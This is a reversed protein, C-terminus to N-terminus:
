KLWHYLITDCAIPKVGSESNPSCSQSYRNVTAHLARFRQVPGAARDLAKLNISWTPWKYVSPSFLVWSEDSPGSFTNPPDMLNSAWWNIGFLVLINQRAWLFIFSLYKKFPWVLCKPEKQFWNNLRWYYPGGLCKKQAKRHTKPATWVWHSSGGGWFFSSISFSLLRARRTWFDQAQTNHSKFLTNSPQGPTVWHGNPGNFLVWTYESSFSSLYLICGPQESGEKM